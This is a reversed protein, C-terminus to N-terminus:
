VRAVIVFPVVAPVTESFEVMLCSLPQAVTQRRGIAESTITRPATRVNRTSSTSAAATTASSTVARDPPHARRSTTTSAVTSRSDCDRPVRTAPTAARRTVAQATEPGVQVVVASTRTAVATDIPTTQASRTWPVPRASGGRGDTRRRHDRPEGQDDRETGDGLSRDADHGAGVGVAGEQEGEGVGGQREGDATAPRATAARETSSRRASGCTDLSAPANTARARCADGHLDGQLVPVALVRGAQLGCRRGRGRRELLRDRLIEVGEVRAGGDTGRLGTVDCDANSM